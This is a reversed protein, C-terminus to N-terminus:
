GLLGRGLWYVGLVLWCVGLATPGRLSRHKFHRREEPPRPRDTRLMAIWGIGLALQLAGVVVWMADM